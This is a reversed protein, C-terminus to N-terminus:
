VGEIVNQDIRDTYSGAFDLIGKRFLNGHGANHVPLGMNALYQVEDGGDGFLYKFKRGIGLEFNQHNSAWSKDPRKPTRNLVFHCKSLPLSENKFLDLLKQANHACRVDAVSVLILEDCEVIIKGYWDPISHPLDIVVCTSVSRALSIIKEVSDEGLADLPMMEGPAAFVNLNDDYEYLLSKFADVDLRSVNKYADITKPNSKIDLLNAANGFQLNFDLLCVPQDRLSRALEVAFNTAITTAGVGGATGQFCVVKIKRIKEREQAQINQENILYDSGKRKGSRFLRSLSLGRSQNKEKQAIGEQTIPKTDTKEHRQQVISSKPVFPPGVIIEIAKSQLQAPLITDKPLLVICKTGAALTTGVVELLQAPKETTLRSPAIVVAALDLLEPSQLAAVADNFAYDYRLFDSELHSLYEGLRIIAEVDDAVTCIKTPLPQAPQIM